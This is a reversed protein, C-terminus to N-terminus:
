DDKTEKRFAYYHGASENGSHALLSTLTYIKESHKLKFGIKQGFMVEKRLLVIDGTYPDMILRKFHIVMVKPLKCIETKRFMTVKAYNLPSLVDVIIQKDELGDFVPVLHTEERDIFENIIPNIDEVERDILELSELFEIIKEM